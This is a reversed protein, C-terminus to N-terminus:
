MKGGLLGAMMEELDAGGGKGDGMGGLGGGKGMGGRPREPVCQEDDGVTYGEECTCADM